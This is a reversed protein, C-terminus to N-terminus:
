AVISKPSKAPRKRMIFPVAPDRKSYEHADNHTRRAAAWHDACYTKGQVMAGCYFREGGVSNDAWLPWRCTGGHLYMITCKHKSDQPKGKPLPLSRKVLKVVAVGEMEDLVNLRLRVRHPKQNVSPPRAKNGNLDSLRFGLRAVKGVITNRTLGLARGVVGASKGEALLKMMEAVLKGDWPTHSQNNHSM